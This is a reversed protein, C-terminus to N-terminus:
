TPSDKLGALNPNETPQDTLWKSQWDSNLWSQEDDQIQNETPLTLWKSISTVFMMTLWKSQWHSNLWQHGNGVLSLTDTIKNDASPKLIFIHCM